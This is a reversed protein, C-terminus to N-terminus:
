GNEWTDKMEDVYIRWGEKEKDNAFTLDSAPCTCEGIRNGDPDIKGHNVHGKFFINRQGNYSGDENVAIFKCNWRLEPHNKCKLNIKKM